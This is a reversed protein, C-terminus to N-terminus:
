NKNENKKKNSEYSNENTQVKEIGTNQSKLNGIKEM